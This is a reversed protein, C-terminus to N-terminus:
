HWNRIACQAFSPEFIGQQRRNLAACRSRKAHGMGQACVCTHVCHCMLGVGCTHLTPNWPIKPAASPGARLSTVLYCGVIIISKWHNKFIQAVVSCQLLPIDSFPALM